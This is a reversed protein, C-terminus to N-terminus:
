INIPKAPQGLLVQASLEGTSNVAFVYDLGHKPGEKAAVKRLRTRKENIFKLHYDVHEVYDQVM